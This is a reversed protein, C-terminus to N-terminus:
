DVHKRQDRGYVLGVDATGKLYKMAEWHSKGVVNDYSVKSMREVDWDSSPYDKLSVMFHAGLPVFVSKGNNVRHNNLIKQMYGLQSVKLTRSGRDRIIEMRLIKRALGLEKMDFEHLFSTKVDLQELEYDECATLSLIVEDKGSSNIAEHFIIPEHTDEEEVIAFAYTAMDDEIMSGLPRSLSITGKDRYRATIVIIRKARDLVLVYNDQNQQQPGEDQEEDEN